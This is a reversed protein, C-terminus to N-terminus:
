DIFGYVTLGVFAAVAVWGLRSMLKGTKSDIFPIAFVGAFLLVFAVIGVSEGELGFISSPLLKLAQFMFLFYWEPKIHDPAAKFPDAENGLERPAFTALSIVVGLLILWYAADRLAADPFFRLAKQDGTKEIAPPVSIGLRQVLVLHGALLATTIAPLLAIHFGFFRSLTLGTVEHGARLFTKLWDGIFPVHSAIQTGVRTAFYSLENWPLLYGTFGLGISLLLLLGGVIWTLERPKRYARMIWVSFFHAFLMAIMLDASWGHVSRVLDGFPVNTIIHRVSAHAESASPRYYLALLIGSIIQIAFLFLTAGGLYYFLSYRHHPVTKTEMFRRLDALDLREDIWRFARRKVQEM